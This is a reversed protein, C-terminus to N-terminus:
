YDESGKDDFNQEDSAQEFDHLVEAVLAQKSKGGAQGKEKNAHPM